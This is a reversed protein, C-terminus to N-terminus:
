ENVEIDGLMDFIAAFSKDGALMDNCKAMQRYFKGWMDIDEPDRLLEGLLLLAQRLEIAQHRDNFSGRDIYITLERQLAVASQQLPSLPRARVRRATYANASGKTSEHVRDQAHCGQLGGHSHQGPPCMAKNFAKMAQVFEDRNM